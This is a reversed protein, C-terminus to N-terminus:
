IARTFNTELLTSPTGCILVSFYNEGGMLEADKDYGKTNHSLKPVGCTEDNMVVLPCKTEFNEVDEKSNNEFVQLKNPVSRAVFSIEKELQPMPTLSDNDCLEERDCPDILLDCHSLPLDAITEMIQQEQNAHLTSLHPEDHTVVTKCTDESSLIQNEAICALLFLHSMHSSTENLLLTQIESNLGKLFRSMVYEMCEVLGGFM